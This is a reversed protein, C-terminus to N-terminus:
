KSMEEHATAVVDTLEVLDKEISKAVLLLERQQEVTTGMWEDQIRLLGRLTGSIDQAVEFFAGIAAKTSGVALTDGTEREASPSVIDPAETGKGLSVSQSLGRELEHRVGTIEQLGKLTASSHEWQLLDHTDRLVAITHYHGSSDQVLNADPMVDLVGGDKRLFQYGVSRASGTHWFLPLTDKIARANSEETLFDVSRRGIVEDREYGLTELWRANVMALQGNGDISHMMVPAHEFLVDFHESLMSIAKRVYGHESNDARHMISLKRM